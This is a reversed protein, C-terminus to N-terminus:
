TMSTCFLCCHDLTLYKLYEQFYLSPNLSGEMVNSLSSQDSLYSRIWDLLSGGVSNTAFLLSDAIECILTILNIKRGNM